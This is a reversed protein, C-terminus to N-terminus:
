GIPGAAQAADETLESYRYYMASIADHTQTTLADVDRTTLGTTSIPEGVVLLLPRPRLHYVHMPLLEYTGVLAVPVVPVQARIAMWAPGSMFSKLHGDSTRGGEPFVVLPMGSKLAAVGRNLSGVQSRLSTSDVPIQGSRRLHWGMFPIKWLDHRALIRFQFPLYSFIVPTDMYSLHNATYVAPAGRLLHEGGVVQASSRSIRLLTRAWIRAIAHQQRGSRDWLSATLSLSGFFATSLGILPMQVLYTRCCDYRSYPKAPAATVTTSM